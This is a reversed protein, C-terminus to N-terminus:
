CLTTSSTSSLTITPVTNKATFSTNTASATGKYYSTGSKYDACVTLTGAAAYPQGPNLLWGTAPVTTLTTITPYWTDSCSGSVYSLKVHAPKVSTTSLKVSALYLLPEKLPVGQGLQGPNVSAQDNGTPPQQGACRGGWVVYNKTYGTPLARFFPFLAGTTLTTVPTSSQVTQPGSMGAPVTGSGSWSMGDAEGAVNTTFTTFTGTVSGAQGMYIPLSSPTQVGSGTVTASATPASNGNQDVYGPDSTTANYGGPTLGAFMVCGNSDTTSTQTDPGAANISVGSLSQGTQDKVQVLLGGSVPRSLISDVTLSTNSNATSKFSEAWSVTSTVKYYAVSSTTCTTAGTTDLYAATSTVSFSSGNEAQVHTQNLGNLQDDSLGRLRDQDQSAIADAQSRLRQDGSAHSTSILAVATASAILAVMLASVLVEILTFGAESRLSRCRTAPRM